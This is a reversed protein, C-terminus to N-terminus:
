HASDSGKAKVFGNQKRSLAGPLHHDTCDEDHAGASPKGEAKWKHEVFTPVPQLHAISCLALDPYRNEWCGRQSHSKIQFCHRQM